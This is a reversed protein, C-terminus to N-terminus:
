RGMEGAPDAESVEEPFSVSYRLDFRITTFVAENQCAGDKTM